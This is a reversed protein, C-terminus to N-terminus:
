LLGKSTKSPRSLTGTLSRQPLCEILDRNARSCTMGLTVVSLKEQREELSHGKVMENTTIGTVKM